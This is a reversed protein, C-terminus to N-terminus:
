WVGSELDNEFYYTPKYFVFNPNNELYEDLAHYAKIKPLSLRDLGKYKQHKEIKGSEFDNEPINESYYEGRYCEYLYDKAAARVESDKNEALLTLYPIGEDGLEYIAGVDINPLAKDIYKQYNYRAAFANVNVSGLVTLVCGATILAVKLVKIKAIYVRLLLAIFVVALFVMFSSTTIRLVTMGFSGIYLVMKSIATTIILLTFIIIFSCLIKIGVSLKGENKRSLTVCFFVILMNITSIATMEFFGRRAYQAVTFVYGEPLFGGLASFFYALQSFLYMLYCISIVSLFSIIYTNDIGKFESPKLSGIRDKKISFGYAIIFVSLLVGFLIKLVLQFVNNFINDIFGEFASDSSILLPVVVILVPVACIVGILAKSFSKKNNDAVAFISKVSVGINSVSSFLSYLINGFFAIDSIGQKPRVIGDLFVTILLFIEIFAFVRVGTNSTLFFCFSCPVAVIACIISFLNKHGFKGLYIAMLIMIGLLSVTFALTFGGFIGFVAMFISVIVAIISFIIDRRELSILPKPEPHEFLASREALTNTINEM